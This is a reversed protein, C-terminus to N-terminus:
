GVSGSEEKSRAIWQAQWDSENLLGMEWSATESWASAEGDM